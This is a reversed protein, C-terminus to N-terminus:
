RKRPLWPFGALFTKECVAIGRLSKILLSCKHLCLSCYATNQEPSEIHREFFDHINAKIRTYMYLPLLVIALYHMHVYVCICDNYVDNSIDLFPLLLCSSKESDM